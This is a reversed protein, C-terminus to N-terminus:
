NESLINKTKQTIFSHFKCYLVKKEKKKLRIKQQKKLVSPSEWSTLFNCEYKWKKHLQKKLSIYM